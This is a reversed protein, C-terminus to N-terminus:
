AKILLAARSFLIKPESIQKLGASQAVKLTSDFDPKSVHIKPEVILLRGDPKLHSTVESLFSRKDPVEHVMYFALAFDVMESIGIKDPQSKHPIIRSKLGAREIKDRLMQLMEEQIDVSIVKGKEGVMEAMALSFFGTGCGLDLVTHGKKIYNGVIKYPNQMYKRIWIDLAWARKYSCVDTSSNVM